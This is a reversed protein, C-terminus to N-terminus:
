GPQIEIMGEQALEDLLRQVESRCVESDVDYERTLASGIAEATTWSELMRWIQSGMGNLGYCMGRDISMAVVEGDVSSQLMNQSQRVRTESGIM